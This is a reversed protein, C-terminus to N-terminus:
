SRKAYGVPINVMHMEWFFLLLSPFHFIWCVLSHKHFRGVLIQLVTKMCIDYPGIVDAGRNYKYSCLMLVDKVLFLLFVVQFLGRGSVTTEVAIHLLCFYITFIMTHIQYTHYIYEHNPLHNPLHM